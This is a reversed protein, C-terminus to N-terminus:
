VITNYYLVENCFYLSYIFMSFERRLSKEFEWIGISFFMHVFLSLVM